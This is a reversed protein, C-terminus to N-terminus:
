GEELHRLGREVLGTPRQHVVSETVFEPHPLSNGDLKLSPFGHEVASENCLPFGHEVTSKISSPFGHEVTPKNGILPLSAQEVVRGRLAMRVDEDYLLVACAMCLPGDSARDVVQTMGTKDVVTVHAVLLNTFVERVDFGRRRKVSRALWDIEPQYRAIWPIGLICDFAYNMEIVLFDDNTRFGDFTYSLSVERRAVRHTKDDELKVEVEGPDQRVNMSAPLVTLCSARFFHVDSRLRPARLPRVAGSIHLSVIILRSNGSTTAENFRAYLVPPPPGLGDNWGAPRWAGVSGPRKKASRGPYFLRDGRRERRGSGARPMGGGPSGVGRNASASSWTRGNSADIADIAMPEPADVRDTASM